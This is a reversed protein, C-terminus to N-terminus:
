KLPPDLTTILAKSQTPIAQPSNDEKPVHVLICQKVPYLLPLKCSACSPPTLPVAWVETFKEKQATTRLLQSPKTVETQIANLTL